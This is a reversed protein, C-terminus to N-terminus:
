MTLNTGNQENLASQVRMRATDIHSQSIDSLVSRRGTRVASVGTTGSGCFPDLIVDGPKTFRQIIDVFGGVSQEHPHFKETDTEIPPAKIIDYIYTKQAPKGKSFWVIPKWYTMVKRTHLHVSGGSVTQYSLIWNYTMYESLRNMADPLHSQGTMVLLPAGERLVRSALRSLDSYFKIYEKEYPADTIIADISGDAIEPLGSQIDACILLCDEESLVGADSERALKKERNIQRLAYAPSSLNEASMREVVAPDKLLREQKPSPNIM